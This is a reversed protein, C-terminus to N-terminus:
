DKQPLDDTIHVWPLKQRVFIHEQLKFISADDFVGVTIFPKDQSESYAYAFPSSCDQCFSRIVKESSAYKKPIGQIIEVEGVNFGAFVLYPAGSIKRCDACYCAGVWYPEKHAKFRIAGCHCGGEM